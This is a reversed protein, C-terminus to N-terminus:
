AAKRTPKPKALVPTDRVKSPCALLRTQSVSFAGVGHIATLEALTFRTFRLRKDTSPSQVAEHYFGCQACVIYLILNM